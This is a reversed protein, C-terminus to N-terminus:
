NWPPIQGERYEWYDVNGTAQIVSVARLLDNTTEGVPIVYMSGSVSAQGQPNFTLVNVGGTLFVPTPVNQLTEVDNIAGSFGFQIKPTLIVNKVTDGATLGDDNSDDHVSYQNNGPTFTVIVNNNNKIATVRALLLDMHLKQTEKDVERRLVWKSYDPVAIAMLIGMVSITILLEPLSFGKSNALYRKMRIERFFRKM